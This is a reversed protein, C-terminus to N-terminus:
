GVSRLQSLAVAYRQEDLGAKVPLVCSLSRTKMRLVTICPGSAGRLGLPLYTNSLIVSQGDRSWVATYLQSNWDNLQGTPADVLSTFRGSALDILQYSRVFGRDSLAQLDQPGSVFRKLLMEYGTPAPYQSWAAPVNPVPALVILSKRDPSLALSAGQDYLTQM